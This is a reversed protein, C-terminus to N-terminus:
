RCCLHPAERMVSNGGIARAHEERRRLVVFVFTLIRRTAFAAAPVTGLVFFFFDFWALCFHRVFQDARLIGRLEVRPDRVFFRTHDRMRRELDGFGFRRDAVFFRQAVWRDEHAGGFVARLDEELRLGPHGRVMGGHVVRLQVFAFDDFFFCRPFGFHLSM